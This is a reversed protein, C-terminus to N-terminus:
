CYSFFAIEMRGQRGREDKKVPQCVGGERGYFYIVYWDIEGPVHIEEKRYSRFSTPLIASFCYKSHRILLVCEKLSNKKKAIKGV